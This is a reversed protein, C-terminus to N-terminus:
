GCASRGPPGCRVGEQRGRGDRRVVTPAPRAATSMESTVPQVPSAAAGEPSADSAVPGTDRSTGAPVTGGAHLSSSTRSGAATASWPRRSTEGAPAAPAAHPAGGIVSTQPTWFGAPNVLTEEHRVTLPTSQYM